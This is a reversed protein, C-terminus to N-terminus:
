FLPEPCLNKNLEYKLFPDKKHDMKHWTKVSNHMQQHNQQNFHSGLGTTLCQRRNLSACFGTFRGITFIHANSFVHESILCLRAPWSNSTLSDFMYILYPTEGYVCVYFLALYQTSIFISQGSTPLLWVQM